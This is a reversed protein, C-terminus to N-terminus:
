RCSFHNCLRGRVSCRAVMAVPPTGGNARGCIATRGARVQLDNPGLNNIQSKKLAVLTEETCKHGRQFFAGGWVAHGEPRYVAEAHGGVFYPWILGFSV